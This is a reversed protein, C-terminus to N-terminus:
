SRYTDFYLQHSLRTRRCRTTHYDGTFRLALSTKGVAGDGLIIVKYQLQEPEDDSEDSNIITVMHM